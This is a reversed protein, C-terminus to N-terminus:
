LYKLIQKVVVLQPTLPLRSVVGVFCSFNLRTITLHILKGVIKKYVITDVEKSDMNALLRVNDHMPVLCPNGGDMGFKTLINTLYGQQIMVIGEELHVFEVCLYYRMQRLDQFILNRIFNNNSGIKQVHNDIILLDGIYFILIL